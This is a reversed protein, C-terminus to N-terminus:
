LAVVAIDAYDAWPHDQVNLDGSLNRSLLGSRLMGEGAM